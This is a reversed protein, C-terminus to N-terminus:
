HLIAPAYDIRHFGLAGFEGDLHHAPAHGVTRVTIQLEDLRHVARGEADMQVYAIADVTGRAEVAIRFEDALAKARQARPNGGAVGLVQLPLHLQVHMEDLHNWSAAADIVRRM